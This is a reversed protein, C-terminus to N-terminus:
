DSEKIAIKIDYYDFGVNYTFDIICTKIDDQKEFAKIIDEKQMQLAILLREYAIM